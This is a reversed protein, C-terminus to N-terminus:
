NFLTFVFIVSHLNFSLVPLRLCLQYIEGPCIDNATVTSADVMACAIASAGCGSGVDLVRKYQFDKKNDLIYRVFFYSFKRLHCHITTTNNIM